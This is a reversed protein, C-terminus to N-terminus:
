RFTCLWLDDLRLPNDDDGSLGGFLYLEASDDISAASAWGRQIPWDGNDKTPPVIRQVLAHSTGDMIWIDNEFSGAGAHGKESPDIEGGFIVAFDKDTSTDGDDRKLRLGSAFSCVSRPRMDPFTTAHDNEWTCSQVDMVQGDNTEHGVFGAIIAIKRRGLVLVSAGGRGALSSPSQSASSLTTWSSDSINFRHLDALRGDAGCGGFVYLCNDSAVMQHYSRPEPPTGTYAVNVWSEQGPVTCNLIWLDHFSSDGM